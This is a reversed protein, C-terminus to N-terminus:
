LKRNKNCTRKLRQLRKEYLKAEIIIMNIKQQMLHVIDLCCILLLQM